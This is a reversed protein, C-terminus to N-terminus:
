KDKQSDIDGSVVYGKIFPLGTGVKKQYEVYEEQFFNLLTIEEVEIREKFFNWSALTYGVLCIPNFM